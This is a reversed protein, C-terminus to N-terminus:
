VADHKSLQLWRRPCCCSYLHVPGATDGGLHWAWTHCTACPTTTPVRVSLVCWGNDARRTCQLRRSWTSECACLRQHLAPETARVCHRLQSLLSKPPHGLSPNHLAHAVCACAPRQPTACYAQCVSLAKCRPIADWSQRSMILKLTINDHAQFPQQCRGPTVLQWSTSLGRRRASTVQNCSATAHGERSM